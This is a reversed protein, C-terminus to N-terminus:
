IKVVISIRIIYSDFGSASAMLFSYIGIESYVM